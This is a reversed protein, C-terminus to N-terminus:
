AQKSFLEPCEPCCDPTIYPFFFLDRVQSSNMQAVQKIIRSENRNMKNGCRINERKSLELNARIFLRSLSESAVLKPKELIDCLDQIFWTGTPM